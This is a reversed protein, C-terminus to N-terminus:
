KRTRQRYRLFLKIDKDTLLAIILKNKNALSQNVYKNQM